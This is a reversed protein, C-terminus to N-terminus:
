IGRYTDDAKANVTGVASLLLLMLLAALWRVPVPFMWKKMCVERKNCLSITGALREAPLPRISMGTGAFGNGSVCFAADLTASGVGGFKELSRVANEGFEPKCIRRLFPVILGHTLLRVSQRASHGSIM